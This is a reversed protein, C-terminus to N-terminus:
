FNSVECINNFPFVNKVVSMGNMLKFQVSWIVHSQNVDSVLIGQGEWEDNEHMRADYSFWWLFGFIDYIM